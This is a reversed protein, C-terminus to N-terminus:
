RFVAWLCGAVTLVVFALAVESREGAQGTKLSPVAREPELREATIATPTSTPRM